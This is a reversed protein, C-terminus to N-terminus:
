ICPFFKRVIPNIIFRFFMTLSYLRKSQDNQYLLEVYVYKGKAKIQLYLSLSLKGYTTWVEHHQLIQVTICNKPNKGRYVLVVSTFCDFCSQINQLLMDVKLKAKRAKVFVSGLSKKKKEM